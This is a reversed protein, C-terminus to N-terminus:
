TLPNLTDPYAALYRNRFETAIDSNGDGTPKLWKTNIPMGITNPSAVLVTAGDESYAMVGVVLFTFGDTPKLTCEVEDGFNVM